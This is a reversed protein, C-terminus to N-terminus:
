FPKAAQAALAASDPAGPTIELSAWSAGAARLAGLSAISRVAHVLVNPGIQQLMLINRLVAAEDAGSQRAEISAGTFGCDTLAKVEAKGGRAGALVGRFIPQLLGAVERLTSPPVGPEIGTIECVAICRLKLQAAAAIAMLRKRATTNRVTSWSLPLFFLPPREGEPAPQLAAFAQQAATLDIRELEVPNRTRLEVPTLRGDDGREGVAFSLAHGRLGGEGLAIVPRLVGRLTLERGSAGAM